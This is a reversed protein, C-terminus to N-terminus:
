SSYCLWRQLGLGESGALAGVRSQNSFGCSARQSDAAVSSFLTYRTPLSSLKIGTTWLARPAVIMTLAATHLLNPCRCCTLAAAASSLPLLHPCRCCTALHMPLLLCVVAALLARILQCMPLLFYICLCVQLKSPISPHFLKWDDVNKAFTRGSATRILTGDM